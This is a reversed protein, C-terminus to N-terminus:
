FITTAAERNPTWCSPSLAIDKQRQEAAAPGVLFPAFYIDKGSLLIQLMKM